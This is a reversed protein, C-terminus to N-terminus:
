RCSPNLKAAKELKVLLSNPIHWPSLSGLIRRYVRRVYSERGGVCDCDCKPVLKAEPAQAQGDGEVAWARGRGGRAMSESRLTGEEQASSLVVQGGGAKDLVSSEGEM